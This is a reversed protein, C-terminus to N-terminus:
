RIIGYHASEVDQERLFELTLRALADPASYNVAHAAELVEALRGRPLGHAVEEAWAHPVIPDRGGRVVLTPAQVAALKAEVPDSIMEPFAAFGTKSLHVLYDVTEIALLGLPERTMNVVLRGFQGLLSRSRPDTTPGVLVLRAVRQPQRGALDLLLQCGFSNALLVDPRELGVADLWLALTDALRRVTPRARLRGSRGFGPLDPAYVTCCGALRAATPLLYRSSVGIGHVLVVVPAGETEAYREFMRLGGVLRVRGDLRHSSGRYLLRDLVTGITAPASRGSVRATM